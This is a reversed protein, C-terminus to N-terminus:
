QEEDATSRRDARRLLVRYLAIGYVLAMVAAVVGASLLAGIGATERLVAGALSTALLYSAAVGYMTTGITEEFGPPLFDPDARLKRRAFSYAVLLFVGLLGAGLRYQITEGYHHWTAAEECTKAGASYEFYDACRAPTYTVGPSDGAVFSRGFTSGFIGAVVGSIGIAILGAIALRTLAFGLEATASRPLLRQRHWGEVSSTAV